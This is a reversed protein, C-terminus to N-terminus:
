LRYNYRPVQDTAQVEGQVTTTATTWIREALVWGDDVQVAVLQRIRTISQQVTM